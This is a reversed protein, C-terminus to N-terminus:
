KTRASMEGIWADGSRRFGGSDIAALGQAELSARFAEIGADTSSRISFLYQGRAGDYRIRDIAVGDNGELSSALRGSMELFSAAKVEDALMQRSHARIDGGAFTPFAARHMAGASEEYIKAVRADKFGSAAASVVAAAALGAALLGVRKFPGANFLRPARRRFAGTLLNVPPPKVSLAAGFIALIGGAPPLRRFEVPRASWGSAIDQPGYFIVGAEGSAEILAPVAVAALDTEAAFGAAGRSAIVRGEDAVLVVTSSSGGIVAFDACMEAVAVGAADFAGLWEGIVSKSIALASRPEGASVVIHLDSVPEALEDELLLTAAAIMKSSNRQPAAFERVAIQEGRLVAVLRAGSDFRGAISSLAAVNEVRGSEVLSGSAFAGWLVPALPTEGTKFVVLDTM